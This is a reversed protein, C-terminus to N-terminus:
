RGDVYSILIFTVLGALVGCSIQRSAKLYVATAIILSALKIYIPTQTVTFTMQIVIGSILAIAMGEVAARASMKRTIREGILAGCLRWIHATIFAIFLHIPSM